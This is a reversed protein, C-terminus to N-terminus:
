KTGPSASRNVSESPTTRKTRIMSITPREASTSCQAGSGQSYRFSTCFVIYQRDAESCSGLTLEIEKRCDGGSEGGGHGPLEQAEDNRASEGWPRRGGIRNRKTPAANRRRSGESGAERRAGKGEAIRNPAVEARQLSESWVCPMGPVGFFSPGAQHGSGGKVM